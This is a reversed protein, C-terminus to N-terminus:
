GSCQWLPGKAESEGLGEGREQSRWYGQSDQFESYILSSEFESVAVCGGGRGGSGEVM